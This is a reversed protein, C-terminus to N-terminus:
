LPMDYTNGDYDMYFLNAKRLDLRNGNKFCVKESPFAMAIHRHLQKVIWQGNEMRRHQVYGGSDLNLRNDGLREIFPLDQKDVLVLHDYGKHNVHIIAVDEKIEVFNKM